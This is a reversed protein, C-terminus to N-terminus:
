LVGGHETSYDCDLFENICVPYCGDECVGHEDGYRIIYRNYEIILDILEAKTMETLRSM